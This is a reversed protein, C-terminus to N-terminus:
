SYLWRAKSFNIFHLSKWKLPKAAFPDSNTPSPLVRALASTSYVALLKKTARSSRLVSSEAMCFDANKALCSIAEGNIINLNRQMAAGVINLIRIFFCTTRIYVFM